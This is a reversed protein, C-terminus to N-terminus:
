NRKIKKLSQEDKTYTSEFAGKELTNYDNAEANYTVIYSGKLCVAKAGWATIIIVNEEMQTLVRPDYKPQLLLMGQECQALVDYTKEVQEAKTIYQENSTSDINTIVYDPVTVSYEDINGAVLIKKSYSREKVTGKEEFLIYEKGDVITKLVTKVQEDVKGQRALVMGTKYGIFKREEPITDLYAGIKDNEIVKCEVILDGYQEPNTSKLIIKERM